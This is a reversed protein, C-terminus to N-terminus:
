MKVSGDIVAHSAMHSVALRVGQKETCTQRHVQSFEGTSAPRKEEDM